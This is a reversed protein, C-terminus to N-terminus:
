YWHCKGIVGMRLISGGASSMKGHFANSLISPGVIGAIICPIAIIFWNMHPNKVVVDITM